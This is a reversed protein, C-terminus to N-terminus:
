MHTGACRVSSHHYMTSSLTYLLMALEFASEESQPWERLDQLRLFFRPLETDRHDDITKSGGIIKYRAEEKLIDQHLTEALLQVKTLGLENLVM